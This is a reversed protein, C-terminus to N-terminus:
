SQPPPLVPLQLQASPAIKRIGGRTVPTEGHPSAGSYPGRTLVRSELSSLVM